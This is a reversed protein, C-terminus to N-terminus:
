DAIRKGVGGDRPGGGGFNDEDKSGREPRYGCACLVAFISRRLPNRSFIGDRSLKDEGKEEEEDEEDDDDFEVDLARADVPEDSDRNLMGDSPETTLEGGGSWGKQDTM